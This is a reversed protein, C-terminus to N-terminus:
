LCSSIFVKPWRIRSSRPAFSRESRSNALFSPSREAANKDSTSNPLRKGESETIAFIADTRPTESSSRLLWSVRGGISSNLRRDDDSGIYPICTPRSGFRRSPISRVEPFNPVGSSSSTVQRTPVGAPPPEHTRERRPLLAINRPLLNKKDQTYALTLTCYGYNPSFPFM